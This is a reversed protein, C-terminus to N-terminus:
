FWTDVAMTELIWFGTGVATFRPPTFPETSVSLNLPSGLRADLYLAFCGDRVDCTLRTRFAGMNM